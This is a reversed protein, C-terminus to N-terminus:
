GDIMVEPQQELPADADYQPSQEVRDRSLTVSVKSDKWDISHVWMPAVLVHKGPWWTSADVALYRIIWAEDDVFVDDVRGILGDTGDLRFGSLLKADHLSSSGRPRRRGAPPEGFLWEWAVVTARDLRVRRAAERTPRLTPSDKIDQRTMPVRALQAYWNKEALAAPSFLLRQRPLWEGTEVTLYRVAWTPEDMLLGALTGVPGDLAEIAAGYIHRALLLM